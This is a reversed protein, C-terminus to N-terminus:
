ALRQESLLQLLLLSLAPLASTLKAIPLDELLFHLPPSSTPLIFVSLLMDYHMWVIVGEFSSVLLCRFRRTM